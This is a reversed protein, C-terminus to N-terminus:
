SRRGKAIDGQRFTREIGCSCGDILAQADILDQRVVAIDLDTYSVRFRITLVYEQTSAREDLCGQSRNGEIRTVIKLQIRVSRDSALRM